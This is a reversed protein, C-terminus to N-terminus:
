CLFPFSALKMMLGFSTVNLSTMSAFLFKHAITDLKQLFSKQDHSKDRRHPFRINELSQLAQSANQPGFYIDCFRMFEADPLESFYNGTLQFQICAAQRTRVNM